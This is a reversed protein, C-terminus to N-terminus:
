PMHQSESNLCRRWVWQSGRCAWNLAAPFSNGDSILELWFPVADDRLSPNGTWSGDMLRRKASLLAIDLSGSGMFALVSLWRCDYVM